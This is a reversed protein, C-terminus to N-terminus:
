YDVLVLSAQKQNTDENQSKELESSFPKNIITFPLQASLKDKKEEENPNKFVTHDIGLKRRKLAVEVKSNKDRARHGTDFISASKVQLKRKKLNEVASRTDNKFHVMAAMAKDTSSPPLLNIGYKEKEKKEEEEKALIVKKEERFKKRMSQSLKFDDQRSEMLVLLKDLGPAAKTAKKKDENAHELKYFPDEALKNAEEENTLEITESSEATWTEAKREAGSAIVYDTHEPDTKIEIHNDCLHCKMRFNWIKTSFYKGIQKKEANFRVGKAIMNNCGGCWINFPMEFRIILIGQDLKRARDRLPHSNRFKNISGKSPDWEPPYYKNVAKREAM